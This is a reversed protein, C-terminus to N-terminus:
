STNVSEAAIVLAFLVFVTLLVYKSSVASVSQM